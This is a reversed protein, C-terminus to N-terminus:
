GASRLDMSGDPDSDHNCGASFRLESLYNAAIRQQCFGGHVGYLFPFPRRSRLFSFFEYFEVKMRLSPEM